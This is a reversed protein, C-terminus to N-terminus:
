WLRMRMDLGKDGMAALALGADEIAVRGPRLPDLRDDVPKVDTEPRPQVAGGAPRHMRM